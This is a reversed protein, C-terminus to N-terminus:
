WNLRFEESDGTAAERAGVIREKANRDNLYNLSVKGALYVAYGVTGAALLWFMGAFYYEAAKQTFEM